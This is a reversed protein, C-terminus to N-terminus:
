VLDELNWDEGESEARVEGEFVNDIYNTALAVCAAHFAATLGDYEGMVYDAVDEPEWRTAAYYKFGILEFYNRDTARDGILTKVVVKRDTEQIQLEGDNVSYVKGDSDEETIDELKHGLAKAIAQLTLFRKDIVKTSTATKM